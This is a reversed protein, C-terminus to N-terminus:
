EDSHTAHNSNGYCVNNDYKDNKDCVLDSNNM